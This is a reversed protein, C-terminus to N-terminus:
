SFVGLMGLVGAVDPKVYNPGKLIKGDERLIPEGDAGLKSMNSDHVENIVLDLPIGAEIAFGNIVVEMDALADAAEVIDGGRPDIGVISDRIEADIWEAAERGYLAEVLECFEEAILDFRMQLRDFNLTPEAEDGVPAKFAYHFEKVKVFTSM